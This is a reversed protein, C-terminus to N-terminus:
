SRKNHNTTEEHNNEYKYIVNHISHKMMLEEEKM